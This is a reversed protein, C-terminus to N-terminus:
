TAGRLSAHTKLVIGLAGVFGGRTSLEQGLAALDNVTSLRTLGLAALSEAMLREAEKAGVVRVIKEHAVAHWDASSSGSRGEIM